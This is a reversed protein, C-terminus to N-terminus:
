GGARAPPTSIPAPSGAGPPGGPAGLLGPAGAAGVAGGAGVPDVPLQIPNLLVAQATLTIPYDFVIADSGAARQPVILPPAGNAYGGPGSARPPPNAAFVVGTAERLTSLFSAYEDPTTVTAVITVTRGDTIDISKVVSNKYIYQRILNVLASRETGTKSSALMFNNAADYGARATNANQTAAVAADTQDALIKAVDRNQTATQLELQKSHYVLTLGALLLGLSLLSLTVVRRFWKTLGVYRPLLDIKIAM